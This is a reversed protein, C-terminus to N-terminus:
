TDIRKGLLQKILMTKDIYYYREDMIKCLDDSGIYITKVMYMGEEAQSELIVIIWRQIYQLSNYNM